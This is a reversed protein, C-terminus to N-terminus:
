RAAQEIGFCRYFNAAFVQRMENSSYGLDSMTEGMLTLYTHLKSFYQPGDTALHTTVLGREKVATLVDVHMLTPDETQNGNEDILLPRNIASMELWVNEHNEALQLQQHRPTM